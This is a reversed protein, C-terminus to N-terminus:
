DLKVTISDNVETKDEMLNYFIVHAKNGEYKTSVSDAETFAEEKLINILPKKQWIELHPQNLSSKSNTQMLLINDSYVEKGPSIKGLVSAVLVIGAFPYFLALLLVFPLYCFTKFYLKELRNNWKKPAYLYLLLGSLFFPLIFVRNTWSGRLVVDFNRYVIWLAITIALLAYHLQKINNAVSQSLRRQENRIIFGWYYCYAIVILLLLLLNIM